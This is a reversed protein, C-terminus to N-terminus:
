FLYVRERSMWDRRASVSLTCMRHLRINFSKTNVTKNRTDVGDLNTVKKASSKPVALLKPTIQYKDYAPDGNTPCASLEHGTKGCRRCVYGSAMRGGQARSPIGALGKTGRAGM